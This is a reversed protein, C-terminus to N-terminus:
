LLNSIKCKDALFVFTVPANLVTTINSGLMSKSLALKADASRRISGNFQMNILVYQAYRVVILKYPQMNFSSPALQGLDIIRQLIENSIMQSSQFSKTSVRTRCLIEFSESLSHFYSKQIKLGSCLFSFAKSRLVKM